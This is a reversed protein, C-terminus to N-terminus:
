FTNTVNIVNMLVKVDDSVLLWDRVCKTVMVLKNSNKRTRISLEFGLEIPEQVIEHLFFTM